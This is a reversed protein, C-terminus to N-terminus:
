LAGVAPQDRDAAQDRRGEERGNLRGKEAEEPSQMYAKVAGAPVAAADVDTPPRSRTASWRRTSTPSPRSSTRWARELLAPVPLLVAEQVRAGRGLGLRRLAERGHVTTLQRKAAVSLEYARLGVYLTNMSEVRRDFMQSPYMAYTGCFNAVFDVKGRANQFDSGVRGPMTRARSTCARSPRAARTRRSRARLKIVGTLPNYLKATAKTPDEYMLFGNNTETPGQIALNFIANDRNGSSTFAGPEDNSIM